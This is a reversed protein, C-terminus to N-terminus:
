AAVPVGGAGAGVGAPSRRFPQRRWYTLSRWLWEMPGFYFRALWWPSLLLQFAWIGFVLFYLQHREWQGFQRFLVFITTTILTQSLYNTLAMRGVAGLARRFGALVGSRCFLMILGIHGTMTALRGLDYTLGVEYYKLVSFQGAHYTMTEHWNVPLGLGYGVVVLTLYFGMSREAQLIRWKFAAMGLVMMGLIDFYSYRLHFVTQMMFSLEAKTAVASLYGGRVGDIFAQRTAEDPKLEKQKGEWYELADKQERTPTENRAKVAEAEEALSHQQLVHSNEVLSAAVGTLLLGLGLIALGRATWNRLPFLFFGMLGYMYLIEGPWLLLYSHILGFLFLWITRRYWADAVSVGAEKAEGKSTFLLVGAGFLMSFMARMTGEFFLSTIIWARLNWGTDGGAGSPDWYAPDPLGMGVINMLLIGLLSVGRIVDVSGLRSSESVPSTLSAPSSSPSSM